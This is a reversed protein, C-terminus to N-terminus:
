EPLRVIRVGREEAQEKAFETLVDAAGLRLEGNQVLKALDSGTIFRKGVKLFAPQSQRDQSETEVLKDIKWMEDFCIGFAEAEQHYAQIRRQYAEPEAGTWLPHQRRMWVPMGRSISHQVWHDEYTENLCLATHVVLDRNPEPFVTLFRGEPFCLAQRSCVECAMAALEPAAELVAAKQDPAVVILRYAQRLLEAASLCAGKWDSWQESLIMYANPCTQGRQMQERQIRLLVREILQQLQNENM